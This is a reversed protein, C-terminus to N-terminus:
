DNFFQLYIKLQSEPGYKDETEHIFTSESLCIACKSEGKIKNNSILVLKKQFHTVHTNKASKVISICTKIINPKFSIKDSM